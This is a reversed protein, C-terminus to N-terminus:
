ISSTDVKSSESRQANTVKDVVLVPVSQSAQESGVNTARSIIGAGIDTNASQLTSTLGASSSSSSSSSTDASASGGPNTALIKKVNAFGSVVAAAAAAIGLAPGVLPIPALAAYAGTAAQYTNITAAAAAAAKGVKTNEGAITSINTAFDKALGLKANTEARNLELDAKSYKKKILSVDAGVKEATKIEEAKKQENAARQKQIQALINEDFLDQENEYNIRAAEIKRNNEQDDYQKKLENIATLNDDQLKLVQLNYDNWDILNNEIQKDLMARQQEFQENLRKAELDISELTLEQQSNIKEKNNLKWVELEFNLDSVAKEARSKNLEIINDHRENELAQIKQYFEENTILKADLEKKAIATGQSYLLKETAILQDYNLNTEKLAQDRRAKNMEYRISAKKIVEETYKQEAAEQADLRQQEAAELQKQRKIELISYEDSLKNFADFKEQEKERQEDDLAGQKIRIEQFVKLEKDLDDRRMKNNIMMQDTIDTDTTGKAELIKMYFEEFEANAKAQAELLKMKANLKDVESASNNMRIVLYGLGATLAAVGAVLLGIPNATMAVNWLWQGATAAKVAVNKIGIMFASEKQLATGIEQVGNLVSQIAVMKQISKTLEQDEAGLLAMSGEAIQAASGIGKFIGIAQDLNKTDSGLIKAEAATDAMADKLEGLRNKQDKVTDSNEDGALKAKTIAATLEKIEQRVSKTAVEYNGVQGTYNGTSIELDTIANKLRLKEATLAKGTETNDREAQSMSSWQKSVIYLQDRLQEISGAQANTASSAKILLQEQTRLSAQTSKLAASYQIYESSLEGQETKAKKTQGKLVEIEEKLRITDKIASEMDLDFEAIIIKEAM